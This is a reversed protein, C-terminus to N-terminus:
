KGVIKPQFYGLFDKLQWWRGHVTIFEAGQFFYRSAQPWKYLAPSTARKRGNRVEHMVWRWLHVRGGNGPGLVGEVQLLDAMARGHRHGLHTKTLPPGVTSPFFGAFEGTSISFIM